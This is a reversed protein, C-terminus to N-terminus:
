ALKVHRLEVGFRAQVEDGVWDIYGNITEDGGWANFYVTQGEAEGVVADWGPRDEASLPAALGIALLLVSIITAVRSM